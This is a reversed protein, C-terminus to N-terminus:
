IPYITFDKFYYTVGQSWLASQSSNPTIRFIIPTNPNSPITADVYREGEVSSYESSGLSTGNDYVDLRIQKGDLGFVNAKFRVTKGVIESLDLASNSSMLQVYNRGLNSGCIIKLAKQTSDYSISTGDAGNIYYNKNRDITADDSYIADIAVFIESQLSSDSIDAPKDTSAVFQTLGKGEGVYGTVTEGESNETLHAVGKDDTIGKGIYRYM